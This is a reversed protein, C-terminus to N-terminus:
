TLDKLNWILKLMTKRTFLKLIGLFPKLLKIKFILESEFDISEKTFIPEATLSFHNSLNLITSFGWIYGTFIATDSFNSLGMIIHTDFKQLKISNICVVIFDFIPVINSKVLPYSQRLEKWKEKNNKESGEDIKKTEDEITKNEERENNRNNSSFKKSFITIAVLKVTIDAKIENDNKNLKLYIKIGSYLFIIFFIIFLAIIGILISLISLIDRM